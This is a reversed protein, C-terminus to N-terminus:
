GEPSAQHNVKWVWATEAETNWKIALGTLPESSSRIADSTSRRQQKSGKRAPAAPALVGKSAADLVQKVRALPNAWEVKQQYCRTNAKMKMFFICAENVATKDAESHERDRHFITIDRLARGQNQDLWLEDWVRSQPAFPHLVDGNLMSGLGTVVPLSSPSPSSLPVEKRKVNCSSPIGDPIARSVTPTKPENGSSVSPVPSVDRDRKPNKLEKLKEDLLRPIDGQRLLDDLVANSKMANNMLVTAPLADSSM